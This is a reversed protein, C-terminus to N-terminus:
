SSGRTNKKVKQYAKFTEAFTMTGDLSTVFYLFDTEDPNLAAKIAEISPNSIPTPPLGTTTFTNYASPLERAAEDLPTGEPLGYLLVKDSQLPMGIRLKNHVSSSVKGFYEASSAEAQIISAITLVEHPSYGLEVSRQSWTPVKTKIESRAAMVMKTLMDEATEPRSFKYKGGILYGEFSSSPIKLQLLLSNNALAMKAQAQTVLTTKEFLAPIEKTTEGPKFIMEHYVIDGSTFKKFIEAPTMAPSLSYEGMPIYFPGDGPKQDSFESLLSISLSNKILGRQELADGVMDADSGKQVEFAIFEKSDSDFPSLFSSSIWLYCLFAAGAFPLLYISLSGLIAFFRLM